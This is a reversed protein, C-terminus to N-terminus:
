RKALGYAVAQQVARVQWHHVSEGAQQEVVAAPTQLATSIADAMDPAALRKECAQWGGAFVFRTMDAADMPALPELGLGECVRGSETVADVYGLQRVSVPSWHPGAASSLDPPPGLIAKVREGPTARTARFRDMITM